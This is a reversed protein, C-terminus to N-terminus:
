MGLGGDILENRLMDAEADIKEQMGEAEIKGAGQAHPADALSGRRASSTEGKVGGRGGM